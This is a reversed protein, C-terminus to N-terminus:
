CFLCSTHSLAKLEGASSLCFYAFRLKIGVQDVDPEFFLCVFLEFLCYWILM